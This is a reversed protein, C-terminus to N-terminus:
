ESSGLTLAPGVQFQTDIWATRRTIFDQMIYIYDAYKNPRAGGPLPSPPCSGQGFFCNPWQYSNLTGWKDFNRKIPNSPEGAAIRELNPNGDALQSVANDVDALLASTAWSSQRLESWKDIVAQKFNPDEFLRRWYPYTVDDNKNVFDDSYWGEPFAGQLYNGNALSLNYDWAPGQVIKGGRDKYYYTSLRFGDINKTMEVLLWTTAWSEVDIYKAYGNIPDAYNAGYLTSEFENLYAKLWNKQITTISRDDPEVMRIEQGRSTTFPVDGAGAKDKKWIYGGTIAPESTDLPTLKAIDVRDKDRKIKELLVYTGRYDKAYDLAKGSDQDLFVEVLTARPAYLDANNSWLFTLFNNLQTKDSYPGNLVWDSEAPLDFFSAAKDPVAGADISRVDSNFEDWLELAFPKKPFGQSTQGRIRLGGRGAFEGQELISARGDEGPNIFIGTVPVMLTDSNEVARGFSSFVMLPLNSDFAQGTGEFNTMSSSLQIYSESHVPGAGKGTEYARARIRISSNITIPGTYLTSTEDPLDGNTTYRIQAAPNAPTLVLSFGTSFVRTSESFTVEGAPAEDGVGNLEGPTSQLFYSNAGLRIATGTLTPALLFDEDSKDVNLGVISLVNSGPQLLNQKDALDVTITQLGLQGSGTRIGFSRVDQANYATGTAATWGVTLDPSGGFISAVDVQTSLTPAAPKVNTDAFYVDMTQTAGRYEIWVYRLDVGPGPQGAFAAHGNFRPVAVRAVNGDRSTDIGIHTGLSDDPDFSGTAGTDFEVAVFRMGSADLGLQGGDGGLRNQGGDQLVFTMGEGGRGDNDLTGGPTHANIVMEASFSYDVGFKVDNKLWAAGSQSALAPTLQIRGGNFTASGVLNFDDQLDLTSFDEYQLATGVEGHEETALASWDITGPALERAVETGNLYAVYGDDFNLGLELRDLPQADAYDFSSRLYAVSANGNMEPIQGGTGIVSSFDGDLPDNDYGIANPVLRWANDAYGVSTWQALPVDQAASQPLLLRGGSIPTVLERTILEQSHGYSVDASQQPYGDYRDVITSGDPSVLALFEGNDKLKFNTHLEGDAADRDKNSAFVVISQKADLTVSPFKWQTLRDPDDTLAWDKLEVPQSGNNFVEIWDSREGDEDKIGSENVAMFESIMLDSAMMARPELQELAYSRERGRRAFRRGM